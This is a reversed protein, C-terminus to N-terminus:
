KPFVVRDMAAILCEIWALDRKVSAPDVPEHRVQRPRSSRQLDSEHVIRNRRHVLRDLRSKLTGAATKRKEAIKKWPNNIGCMRLAGEVSRSSQFPVRLLRGRLADKVQVWPRSNKDARRREVSEAVLECVEDFRFEQQALSAAPKWAKVRRHVAEHLYTDIAAIGMVLGSRVLDDALGDPLDYEQSFSVIGKARRLADDAAQKPSLPM